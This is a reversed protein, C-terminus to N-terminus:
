EPPSPSLRDIRVRVINSKVSENKSTDSCTAWFDVNKEVGEAVPVTVSDSVNGGGTASSAPIDKDKAVVDGDAFKHYISCFSLDTLQSGDSNTVPEKYSVSVVVGSVTFDIAFSEDWLIVVSFLCFLAFCVLLLLVAKGSLRLSM